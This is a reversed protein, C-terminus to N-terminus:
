NPAVQCAQAQVDPKKWDEDTTLLICTSGTSTDLRFTRLGARYIQYRGVAKGLDAQRRLETLEDKKVLEYDPSKAKQLLAEDDDDVFDCSACIVFGLLVLCLVSISRRPM